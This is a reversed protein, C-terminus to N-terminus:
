VSVPILNEAIEKFYRIFHRQRLRAASVEALDQSMRNPNWEGLFSPHKWIYCIRLWTLYATVIVAPIAQPNWIHTASVHAAWLFYKSRQKFVKPVWGFRGIIHEFSETSGDSWRYTQSELSHQHTYGMKRMIKYAALWRRVREVFTASKPLFYQKYNPPVFTLVQLCADDLTQAIIIGDALVLDPSKNSPAPEPSAAPSGPSASAPTSVSTSSGPTSVAASSAVTSMSASAVTSVAALSAVTSVAASSADTSMSASASASASPTLLFMSPPRSSVPDTPESMRPEPHVSATLHLPSLDSDILLLVFHPIGSDIPCFPALSRNSLYEHIKSNNTDLAFLKNHTGDDYLNGPNDVSGVIRYFAMRNFPVGRTPLQMATALVTNVSLSGQFDPALITLSRLLQVASSADLTVVGRIESLSGFADVKLNYYEGIEQPVDHASQALGIHLSVRHTPSSSVGAEISQTQNSCETPIDVHSLLAPNNDNPYADQQSAAISSDQSAQPVNAPTAHASMIPFTVSDTFSNLLEQFGTSWAFDEM